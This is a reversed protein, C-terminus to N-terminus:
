RTAALRGARDRAYDQLSRVNPVGRAVEFAAVAAIVDRTNAIMLQVPSAPHAAQWLCRVNRSTFLLQTDHWASTCLGDSPAFQWVHWEVM